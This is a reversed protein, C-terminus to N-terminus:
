WRMESTVTESTFLSMLFSTTATIRQVLRQWQTVTCTLFELVLRSSHFSRFHLSNKFPHNMNVIDLKCHWRCEHNHRGKPHEHISQEQGIAEPVMAPSSVEDIKVVAVQFMLNLILQCQLCITIGAIQLEGEQQRMRIYRLTQDTLQRLKEDM